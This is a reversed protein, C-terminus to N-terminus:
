VDGHLFCSMNVIVKFTSLLPSLQLITFASEANLDGQGIRLAYSLAYIIDVLGHYTWVQNEKDLLVPRKPIQSIIDQEDPSLQESCYNPAEDCIQELEELAEDMLTDALYRQLDFSQNLMRLEMIHRLEDDNPFGHNFGITNRESIAQIPPQMQAIVPTDSESPLIRSEEVSLGEVLSQDIMSESVDEILVKPKGTRDEIDTVHMRTLMDLTNPTDDTCVHSPEISGCLEEDEVFLRSEQRSGKVRQLTITLVDTKPNFKIDWAPKKEKHIGAGTEGNSQDADLEKIREVQVAPQIIEPEIEQILLSKKIREEEREEIFEEGVVQAWEPLHVVLFYPKANVRIQQQQKLPHPSTIALDINKTKLHPTQITLTIHTQTHTLTHRPTLM